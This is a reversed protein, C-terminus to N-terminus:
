KKLLTVAEDIVAFARTAGVASQSLTPEDILPRLGLKQLIFAHAPHQSPPGAIFSSRIAPNLSAATYAAAAAILGDVIIPVRGAASVLMLGALGAIEATGVCRIVDLVDLREPENKAIAHEILEIQAPISLNLGFPDTEPMLDAVKAQGLVAAVAIAPLIGGNSTVAGAALLNMGNNIEMSGINMGVMFADNVETIILAPGAAMNKCAAVRLSQVSPHNFPSLLGIDAVTIAARHSQALACIEATGAVISELQVGTDDPTATVSDQDAAILVSHKHDFNFATTGCITALRVALAELQTPEKDVALMEKAAQQAVFDIMPIDPIYIM